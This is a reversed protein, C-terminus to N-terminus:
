LSSTRLIPPNSQFRSVGPRRPSNSADSTSPELSAGGLKSNIEKLERLQAKNVDLVSLGLYVGGGGGISTLSDAGFAARRTNNEISQGPANTQSSKFKDFTAGLGIGLKDIRAQMEPNMKFGNESFVKKITDAFSEQEAKAKAAKAATDVGSAILDPERGGMALDKIAVGAGSFGGRSFGALIKGFAGVWKNMTGAFAVAANVLAKSIHFSLVAGLSIFQNKVEEFTTTLASYLANSMAQYVASFLTSAFWRLREVAYDFAIGFGEKITDWLKGDKALQYVVGVANVLAEGFDNGAKVLSVGLAGDLLKSLVPAVREMLGLWFGRIKEGVAWLKISVDRFTNASRNLAEANEGILRGATKLAIGKEVARNFLYFQGAAAGVRKGANAMEEGLDLVDKIADKIGRVFKVGFAAVLAAGAAGMAAKVAMSMANAASIIAKAGKEFPGSDLEVKATAKSNRAM